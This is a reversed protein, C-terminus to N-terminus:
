GTLCVKAPHVFLLDAPQMNGAKKLKKLLLALNSALDPMTKSGQDHKTLDGPDLDYCFNSCTLGLLIM